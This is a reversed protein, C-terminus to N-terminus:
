FPRAYDDNAHDLIARGGVADAAEIAQLLAYEFIAAGLNPGHETEDLALRAILIVPIEDYRALGKFVRPLAIQRSATFPCISYYDIERMDRHIAYTRAADAAQNTIAYRILPHTISPKGCDFSDLSHERTLLESRVIM